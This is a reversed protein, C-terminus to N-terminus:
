DRLGALFVAQVILLILSLILIIFFKVNDNDYEDYPITNIKNNLIFSTILGSFGSIYFNVEMDKLGFLWLIFMFINATIFASSGIFIKSYVSKKLKM